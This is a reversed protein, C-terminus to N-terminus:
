SAFGYRITPDNNPAIFKAQKCKWNLELIKLIWICISQMAQDVGILMVLGSGLNLLTPHAINNPLQFKQECEYNTSQENNGREWSM